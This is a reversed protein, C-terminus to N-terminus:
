LRAAHPDEEAEQDGPDRESARDPEVAAVLPLRELQVSAGSDRVM